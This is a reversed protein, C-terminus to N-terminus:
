TASGEYIVNKKKVFHAEFKSKVTDYDNAEAETLKFSLLIDDADSGMSYLLTNVQVSGEKSHLGSAKRFHEFRRIWKTWEEPKAFNFSTPTPVQYTTVVHTETGGEEAM